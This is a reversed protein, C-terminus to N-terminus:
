NVCLAGWPGTCTQRDTQWETVNKLRSWAAMRDVRPVEHEAM